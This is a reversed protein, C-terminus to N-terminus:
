LLRLGPHGQPTSFRLSVQQLVRSEESQGLVFEVLEDALGRTVDLRQWRGDSSPNVTQLTNLDLVGLDLALELHSNQEELLLYTSQVKSRLGSM